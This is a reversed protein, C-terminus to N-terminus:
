ENVHQKDGLLTHSKLSPEKVQRLYRSRMKSETKLKQGDWFEHRASPAGLGMKSKSTQTPLFWSLM